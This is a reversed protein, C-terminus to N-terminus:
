ILDKFHFQKKSNAYDAVINGNGNLKYKYTCLGELGVPGRAHIKSTSIGLEAGFGYRFGDAFRTSINHYVGASDVYAQFYAANTNNNSIICDTHHSGHTNIHEIAKDINDVIKINIIKDLYEKYFDDDTALECKIIKQVNDDGKIKVNVNELSKKLVPLFQVAINKNILLSEVSNCAASYQIKSDIIINIAKEFDIDYDVYIHCIGDAHGMVPIKTNSMVYSVFENSGRPVLLDVSENCSLLEKIDEREEILFLMDSDLELKVIEKKLIDFIIKNSLRTESGGKLIACNASKICLCSIQILADPRAEFVVGILGLPCTERKLILDEDLMRHIQVKGIPDDLSILSKIAEKVDHLKKDDFKLRNYISNNINNNKANELDLTNAKFIEEKNKDLAKSINSLLKNRIELSINSIATSKKKMKFAQEKISM